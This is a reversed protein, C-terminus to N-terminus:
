ISLFIFYLTYICKNGNVAHKDQPGFGFLISLFYFLIFHTYSMNSLPFYLITTNVVHKHQPGVWWLYVILKIRAYLHACQGFM